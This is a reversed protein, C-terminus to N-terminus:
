PPDCLPNLRVPIPDRTRVTLDSKLKGTGTCEIVHNNFYLHRDLWATCGSIHKVGQTILCCLSLLFGHMEVEAILDRDIGRCSFNPADQRMLKGADTLPDARDGVRLGHGIDRGWVPRLDSSPHAGGGYRAEICDLFLERIVIFLGHAEGVLCGVSTGPKDLAGLVVPNYM